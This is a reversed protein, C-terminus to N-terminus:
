LRRHKEHEERMSRGDARAKSRNGCGDPRRRRAEMTVRADILIACVGSWPGDTGHIM